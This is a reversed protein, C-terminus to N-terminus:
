APQPDPEAVLPAPPLTVNAVYSAFIERMMPVCRGCRVRAGCRRYICGPTRCSGSEVAARCDGENLGNCVCVIM